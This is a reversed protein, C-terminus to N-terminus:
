LLKGPDTGPAVRVAQGLKGPDARRNGRLITLMGAGTGLGLVLFAVQLGSTDALLCLAFEVVGFLLRFILSNVSMVTAHVARPTQRLVVSEIVPAAASTAFAAVAFLTLGWLSHWASLGMTGVFVLAPLFGLVASEGFRSVLRPSVAAGAIRASRLGLALFGMAAVPVGLNRAYPQLFVISVVVVALPMISSYLLAYRLGAQQVITQGALRLTQGYGLPKETEGRVDRSPESFQLVLGLSALLLAAYVLFPLRLDLAGLLGGLVGSIAISIHEVMAQRSCLRAYEAERGLRHLTDYLFAQSAGSDCTFALAWLVNALIFLPYTPALVFLCISGAALMVGLVLSSKRGWTDAIMGTPVEGAAVMIWFILDLLGIQTLTYGRVEQMFLVWIPLMLTFEWVFRFALFRPINATDSPSAACLQMTHYM